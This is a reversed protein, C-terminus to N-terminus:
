CDFEVTRLVAGTFYIGNETSEFDFGIQSFYEKTNEIATAVFHMRIVAISLLNLRGDAGFIRNDNLAGLNNTWLCLGCACVCNGCTFWILM